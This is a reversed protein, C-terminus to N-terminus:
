FETTQKRSRLMARQVAEAASKQHRADFQLRSDQLYLLPLRQQNIEVVANVHEHAYAHRVKLPGPYVVDVVQQLEAEAKRCVTRALKLQIRVHLLLSCFTSVSYRVQAAAQRLIRQMLLSVTSTMLRHPSWRNVYVDQNVEAQLGQEHCPEVEECNRQVEHLM